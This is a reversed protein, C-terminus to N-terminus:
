GPMRSFGLAGLIAHQMGSLDNPNGPYFPLGAVRTQLKNLKWGSLDIPIDPSGGYGRFLGRAHRVGAQYQERMIYFCRAALRDAAGPDCNELVTALNLSWDVLWSWPLARYLDAMSAGRIGSLTRRLVRKPDVGLPVEPLFYKFEASAWIKDGITITDRYKPVIKYMQTVLIPYVADYSEIWDGQTTTHTDVLDIRRRVWKGQNRILWDIRKQMKRQKEVVTMIDAIMPNWGFLQGLFRDSLDKHASQLKIDWFSQLSRVMGALDKLEYVMNLLSYPNKTPKMRHYATAGWAKGDGLPMSIAPLGTTLRGLYSLFPNDGGAVASIRLWPSVGNRTESIQRNWYGGADDATFWGPHNTTDMRESFNCDTVGYWTYDNLNRDYVYGLVSEYNPSVRSKIMTQEKPTDM